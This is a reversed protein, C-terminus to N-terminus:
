TTMSAIQNHEDLEKQEDETLDSDPKTMLELIRAHEAREEEEAPTYHAEAAEGESLVADPDTGPPLLGLRKEKEVLSGNGNSHANLESSPRGNSAPSSKTPESKAGSPTQIQPKAAVAGPAPGATAEQQAEWVRASAKGTGSEVVIPQGPKDTQRAKRGIIRVRGDIKRDKRNEEEKAKSPLNYVERDGTKPDQVEIIHGNVIRQRQLTKIEKGNSDRMVKGTNDLVAVKVERILHEWASPYKGETTLPSSKPFIRWPAEDSGDNGSTSIGTRTSAAGGSRTSHHTSSFSKKTVREEVMETAWKDSIAPSLEEVQLENVHMRFPRFQDLRTTTEGKRNRVHSIFWDMEMEEDWDKIQQVDVNSHYVSMNAHSHAFFKMDPIQDELGETILEEMLENVTKELDVSGGSVEQKPVRIDYLYLFRGANLEVPKIFGFWYCEEPVKAVFAKEKMAVEFSVLLVTPANADVKTHTKKTYTTPHSSM